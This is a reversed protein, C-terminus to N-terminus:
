PLGNEQVSGAFYFPIHASWGYSNDIEQNAKITYIIDGNSDTSITTSALIPSQTLTHPLLEITTAPSIQSNKNMVKGHKMDVLKFNVIPDGLFIKGYGPLILFVNSTIMPYEFGAMEYYIVNGYLVTDYKTNVLNCNFMKPNSIKADGLDVSSGNTGDSGAPGAPGQPGMPGQPGQPGQPGMPGVPGVPGTEGQPGTEGPVGTRGSYGTVGRPGQPGAPGQPGPDGKPGKAGFKYTVSKKNCENDLYDITIGDEYYAIRLINKGEPLTVTPVKALAKDLTGNTVFDDPDYCTSTGCPNGFLDM